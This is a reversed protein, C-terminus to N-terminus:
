NKFRIWQSGNGYYMPANWDFATDAFYYCDDFSSVFRNNNNGDDIIASTDAIATLYTGTYTNKKHLILTNPDYVVSPSKLCMFNKAYKDTFLYIIGNYSIAAYIKDISSDLGDCKSVQVWSNSSDNFKYHSDYACYHLENNHVAVKACRHNVYTRPLYNKYTITNNVANYIYYNNDCFIYLYGGYSIIQRIGGSSLTNGSPNLETYASGNFKVFASYYTSDEFSSIYIEDNYVAYFRRGCELFKCIKVPNGNNYRCIYWDDNSLYTAYYIDNHYWVGYPENTFTWSDNNSNYIYGVVYMNGHLLCSYKDAFSIDFPVPNLVYYIETETNSAVYPKNIIIRQYKHNTKIWIGDKKTPEDM